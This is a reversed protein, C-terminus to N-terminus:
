GQSAHVRAAAVIMHVDCAHALQSGCCVRSRADAVSLWQATRCTHVYLRVVQSAAWLRAEPSSADLMARSSSVSARQNPGASSVLKAAAEVAEAVTPGSPKPAARPAAGRQASARAALAARAAAERQQLQTAEQVLSRM